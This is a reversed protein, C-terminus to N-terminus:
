RRAASWLARLEDMVTAEEKALARLLPKKHPIDSALVELAADQNEKLVTVLMNEHDGSM